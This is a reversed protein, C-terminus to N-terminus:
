RKYASLPQGLFSGTGPGSIVYKDKPKKTPAPPRTEPRITKFSDRLQQTADNTPDPTPDLFDAPPRESNGHQLQRLIEQFMATRDPKPAPQGDPANNGHVTDHFLAAINGYTDASPKHAGYWNTNVVDDVHRDLALDDVEFRQTSLERQKERLAQIFPDSEQQGRQAFAKFPNGM